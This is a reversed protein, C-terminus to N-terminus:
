RNVLKVEGNDLHLFGNGWQPHSTSTYKKYFINDQDFLGGLEVLDFNGSIDKQHACHHGHASAINTMYTQLLRQPVAIPKMAYNKPHCVRWEKGGNTLSLWDADTTTYGNIIGTMAFLLKMSGKGMTARIWRDEHNGKLFYIKKFNDRLIRLYEAVYGIEEEWTDAPQMDKFASWNMCDMFDGAVIIHKVKHKDRYAILKEFWEKSVFPIHYDSTVLINNSVVNLPEPVTTRPKPLKM